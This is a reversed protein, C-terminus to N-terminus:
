PKLGHEELFRLTSQRVLQNGISGSTLDFAHESFPLRILQTTVGVAQARANFAYAADPAVLHDSEPVILLTPPAAASIHTTSAVYAYREPYQEPSGGAYRQSMLKGFRGAVVDDNHYMRAVDVVPYLAITAAVHPISGACSPQLTGQNAMYSVNIVLNGGASEGWLAIRSPDGALQALHNGIWVLACGLQPQVINWTARQETALTYELSILLYGREIFWRYDAQRQKLTQAGWGGGHIYVIVPLPTAGSKSAPRYIDLPLDEGDHSAYVVSQVPLGEVKQSGPLLAQALDISVGNARAVAIQQAQIFATGIAAFAALTLWILTRFERTTRWRRFNIWAGALSLITLWPGYPGILIPGLEGLGPIAPILSGLTASAFVVLLLHGLFRVIGAAKPIKM